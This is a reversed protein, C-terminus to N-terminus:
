CGTVTEAAPVGALQRLTWKGPVAADKIRWAGDEAKCLSYVVKGAKGARFFDARVRASDGAAGEEVVDLGGAPTKADWRYDFNVKEPSGKLASALDAVFIKEPNVTQLTDEFYLDYVVGTPKAPKKDQAYASAAAVLSIAACALVVRMM